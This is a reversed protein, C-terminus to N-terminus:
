SEEQDSVQPAPLQKQPAPLAEPTTPSELAEKTKRVKDAIGFLEKVRDFLPKVNEGVDGVVESVEVMGDLFVRYDSYEKDLEAQLNNVVKLLRRKFEDTIATSGRVINRIESLLDDIRGKEESSLSILFTNILSPNEITARALLAKVHRHILYIKERDDSRGLFLRKISIGVFNAQIEPKAEDPDPVLGELIIKLTFAIDGAGEKLTGGLYDTCIQNAALLKNKPLSALYQNDLM